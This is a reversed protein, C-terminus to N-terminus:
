GSRGHEIGGPSPDDGPDLGPYGDPPHHVLRRHPIRGAVQTPSAGPARLRFVPGRGSRSEWLGSGSTQGRAVQWNLHPHDALTREIIMKKLPWDLFRAQETWAGGALVALIDEWRRLIDQWQPVVGELGGKAAFRKADALFERQLELATVSRGTILPSAWKLSPDHSYDQVAQVPDDLALGLNVDEAEIMALIIQLVASRSTAPPTPWPNPRLLHLATTGIAPRTCNAAESVIWTAACPKTGATSWRGTTPPRRGPRADRLLRGAALDPLRGGAVM